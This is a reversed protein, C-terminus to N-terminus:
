PSCLHARRSGLDDSRSSRVREVATGTELETPQAVSETKQSPSRYRLLGLGHPRCLLWPWVVM